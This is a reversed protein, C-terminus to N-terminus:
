YMVMLPVRESYLARFGLHLNVAHAAVLLAGPRQNTDISGILTLFTNAFELLLMVMGKIPSKDGAAFVDRTIEQRGALRHGLSM